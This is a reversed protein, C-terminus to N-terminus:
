LGPGAAAVLARARFLRLHHCRRSRSDRRGIAPPPLVDRQLKGADHRPRGIALSLIRMILAAFEIFGLEACGGAHWRSFDHYHDAHISEEITSPAPSKRQRCPFEAVDDRSRSISAQTLIMVQRRSSAEATFSLM